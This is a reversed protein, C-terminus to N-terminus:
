LHIDLDLGDDKVIIPEGLNVKNEKVEFVVGEVKFFSMGDANLKLMDGPHYTARRITLVPIKGKKDAYEIKRITPNFVYFDEEINEHMEVKYECRADDANRVSSSKKFLVINYRDISRNSSKSIQTSNFTIGDLEHESISLYESVAQTILYEKEVNKGPVPITLIKSLTRLFSSKELRKISDPNFKSGKEHSILELSSIDLVRLKQLAEFPAVVVYSGVAPRVEAIAVEASAAGYFVPIGSANMRGARAIKSPPPGFELEPRKLAVEVEDISDFVRARYFITNSEIEKLASSSGKTKYSDIDSFLDDLFIKVGQNFYRAESKLSELMKYWALDLADSYFDVKVYNYEENYKEFEDLRVPNYENELFDYIDAVLFEDDTQLERHIVSSADEGRPTDWYLEPEFNPEYYSEFVKHMMEAIDGYPLSKRSRLCYSCGGNRKGNSKIYSKVYEEGICEHCVKKEEEM